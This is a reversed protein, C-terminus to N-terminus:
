TIAIQIPLNNIRILKYQQSYATSGSREYLPISSQFYVKLGVNQIEQRFYRLHPHNGRQKRMKTQASSHNTEM